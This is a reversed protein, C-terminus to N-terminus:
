YFFHLGPFFISFTPTFVVFYWNYYVRGGVLYLFSLVLSVMLGMYRCVTGYFRAKEPEKRGLSQGILSVAAAQFGDGFSFSLSMVNMGVQHAAFGNTGTDAAMFAFAMFGARILIQEAFVTSAINFIGKLCLFRPVIKEKWIYILSVFTKKTFISRIAMGCAVVTGFVTAIAAGHIGLAPFGFRGEILLYNGIVNVTNAVINTKM